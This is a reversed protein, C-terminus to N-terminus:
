YVELWGTANLTTEDLRIGFQPVRQTGLIRRNYTHMNLPGSIRGKRSFELTAAVHFKAEAIIGAELQLGVQIPVNGISVGLCLFCRRSTTMLPWQWERGFTARAVVSVGVEIDLTGWSWTEQFPNIQGTRAIIHVDASGSVYCDVCDIELSGSNANDESKFKITNTARDVDIDMSREARDCILIELELELEDSNALHRNSDKTSECHQESTPM